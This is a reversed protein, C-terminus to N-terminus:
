HITSDLVLKFKRKQTTQTSLFKMSKRWKQNKQECSAQSMKRYNSYNMHALKRRLHPKIVHARTTNNGMYKKSGGNPQSDLFGITYLHYPKWEAFRPDDWYSTTHLRVILSWSSSTCTWENWTSQCFPKRSQPEQNATSAYWPFADEHSTKKRSGWKRTRISSFWM